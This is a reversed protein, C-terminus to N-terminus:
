RVPQVKKLRRALLGFEEIGVPGVPDEKPYLDEAVVAAFKKRKELSSEKFTAKAKSIKRVTSTIRGRAAIPNNKL